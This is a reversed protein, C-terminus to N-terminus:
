GSSSSGSNNLQKELSAVEVARKDDVRFNFM